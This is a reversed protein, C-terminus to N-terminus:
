DESYASFVVAITCQTLEGYVALELKTLILVLSCVHGIDGAAMGEFMSM